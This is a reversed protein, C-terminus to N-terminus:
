FVYIETFFLYKDTVKVMNFMFWIIKIISGYSFSLEIQFSNSHSSLKIIKDLIPSYIVEHGEITMRM